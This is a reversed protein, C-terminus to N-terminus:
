DQDRYGPAPTSSRQNNAHENEKEIEKVAQWYCPGQHTRDGTKLTMASDERVMLGCAACYIM